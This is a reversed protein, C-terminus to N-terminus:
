TLALRAQKSVIGCMFLSWETYAGLRNCQLMTEWQSPAYVSRDRCLVDCVCNIKVAGWSVLATDQDTTCSVTHVGCSGTRHQAGHDHGEPAWWECEAAVVVCLTVVLSFLSCTSASESIFTVVFHSVNPMCKWIYKRRINKKKYISNKETQGWLDSQCNSLGPEALPCCGNGLGIIAWNVWANM